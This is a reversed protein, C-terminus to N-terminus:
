ALDAARDVLHRAAMVRKRRGEWEGVRARARAKARREVRAREEVRLALDVRGIQADRM